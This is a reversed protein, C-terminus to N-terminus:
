REGSDTDAHEFPDMRGVLIQGNTELAEELCMQCHPQKIEYVIYKAERGCGCKVM